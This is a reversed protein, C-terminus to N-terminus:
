AEEAFHLIEAMAEEMESISATNCIHSTKASAM